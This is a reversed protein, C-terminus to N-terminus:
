RRWERQKAWIVFSGKEGLFSTPRHLSFDQFNLSKGVHYEFGNRGLLTLLRELRNKEGGVGIHYECFLYRVNQLSDGCEELVEDEAGEVDLKLFDTPEDLFRSLRKCQVTIKRLRDGLERRHDFLSGAMSYTESVFFTRKGERRYLAYPLIEVNKYDNREVNELAMERMEPFPEFGIVRANPYLTKFYYVALGFHTGCDLIRPSKTGAKFYYDERVLIEHILTWLSHRDPFRLTGKALYVLDGETVIDLVRGRVHRSRRITATMEATKLALKRKKWPLLPRLTRMESELAVAATIRDSDMARDLMRYDLLLRELAWGERATLFGCLVEATGKTFSQQLLVYDKAALVRRFQEGKNEGLFRLFLSNDERCLLFKLPQGRRKLAIESFLEYDNSFLISQLAQFRDYSLIKKLARFNEEFL